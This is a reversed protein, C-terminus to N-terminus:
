VMAEYVMVWLPMSVICFLTTVVNIVSAYGADKDYLVAVQTINSASPAIASLLPILALTKGGPIAGLAVCLGTAAVVLGSGVIMRWILVGVVRRCATLDRLTLGGVIMGTIMMALPGIMGAVDSFAMAVPEPLRIGAFLVILGAGIALINPNLLIKKWDPSTGRDFLRVGVTWFLLNFVAVYSSVYIVWEDGLIYAVLPIILNGANTFVISVQEVETAHWLKKAAFALGFFLAHFGVAMVVCTLMGTRVDPSLEKLFANFIVFPTIFYLSLRSLVRSDETKLIKGRVLGATVFLILFLEAIKKLLPLAIM